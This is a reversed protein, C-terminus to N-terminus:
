GDHRALEKLLELSDQVVVDAAEPAFLTGDVEYGGEQFAERHPLYGFVGNSYGSFLTHDFPSNQVIRQSLEIFPEGPMSVLAVPGIRLGQLPWELHTMEQYYRAEQLDDDAQVALANALRIEAEPARESRLRNLRVTRQTLTSELERLPSFKKLPLRMTRYRVKLIPAEVEVPESEYLAIPAGSVQIGALRERRPLTKIGALQRAAELGLIRGLRWYVKLDGTFGEVPGVNGAAGQLFLCDGGIEREVVQRVVGPYDPTFYQNQWGVITPHCAYHVISAVPEENLDDFRVVRVAHDVTGDPNKGVIVRGDELRLRRNVNIACTGQAAACRVPRLNQQAQWAAGAIRAPLDELYSQILDLGESIMAFRYTNAASHTHTYSLRINQFPINTHKEVAHVAKTIWATDYFGTSDFDIVAASTVSDSVVLARLALPLDAGLGRQHTQAGWGGQPTGPAPTIDLRSTGALLHKV